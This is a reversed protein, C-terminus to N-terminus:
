EETDEMHAPSNLDIYRAGFNTANPFHVKKHRGLGQSSGFVKSCHPCKLVAPDELVDTHNGINGDYENEEDFEGDVELQDHKIFRKHSAKHGGLAQYSGFIKRCMKCEFREGQSYVEAYSDEQENEDKLKQKKKILEKGEPWKEKSLLMLTLAANITLFYSDFISGAHNPGAEDVKTKPPSMLARTADDIKRSRKSRKGTMYSQDAESGQDDSPNSLRTAFDQNMSHFNHETHSKMMMHSEPSSFSISRQHSLSSGGDVCVESIELPIHDAIPTIPAPKPVVPLKVFHSRMHGGMAKGSAFCKKCIICIKSGNNSNKKREM